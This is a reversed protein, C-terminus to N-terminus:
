ENVQMKQEDLHTEVVELHQSEERVETNEENSTKPLVIEDLPKDSQEFESFNLNDLDIEDDLEEAAAQHQSTVGQSEDIVIEDLAVTAADKKADLGDDFSGSPIYSLINADFNLIIQILDEPTADPIKINDQSAANNLIMEFRDELNFYDGFLKICAEEASHNPDSAPQILVNKFDVISVKCDKSIILNSLEVEWNDILSYLTKLRLRAMSFLKEAVQLTREDNVSFLYSLFVEFNYGDIREMTVESSDCTAETYFIEPSLGANFAAVQAIVEYKCSSTNVNGTTNYITKSFMKLFKIGTNENKNFHFIVTRYIKCLKKKLQVLCVGSM